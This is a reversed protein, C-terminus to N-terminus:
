FSSEMKGELLPFFYTEDDDVQLCIISFHKYFVKVIFVWWFSGHFDFGSIESNWLVKEGVVNRNIFCQSGARLQTTKVSVRKSFTMFYRPQGIIVCSLIPCM